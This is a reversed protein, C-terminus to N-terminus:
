LQIRKGEKILKILEDKYREIYGDVDSESALWAKDFDVIVKRTPIYEIEQEAVGGKQGSTKGAPKGGKGTGVQDSGKPIPTAADVMKKLLKQYGAEEFFRISDNIVAILHQQNIHDKLNSFPADLQRSQEEALTKYENMSQMRSQMADLKTITETRIEQIKKNITTKLEDVQSKLNQIKDGKYCSPDALVIKIQNISDNDNENIYAFNADQSQIFEKSSAYIERQFGSMFKRVPDIVSEKLDLLEDENNSLETLYWTYPKGNISELQEITPVLSNLFPYQSSQVVLLNLEDIVKQFALGTDKGLVKAESSQPPADFFDEYFEKLNRVQSASFDIQPDLVVNAHERSNLLAKELEGEELINGDKRVEIKGRACLMALTSLIAAYYWGYPKREFKEILNKLTTRVGGRNNSQVFSLLEQESEAMATADNGFLGEQTNNLYNPVDNETYSIGRLMSLNPYTRQILDHFGRIIRSAADEGGIEVDGGQVLMNAQGLLSKISQQIGSYRERNQFGKNELIGKVTDLQATSINQRIYKETQKYMTIDRMLRDDPPMIVMLEARAMSLGRLVDLSEANEYFPTIVNISLEHERGHLRDDLKRTYFYDHGNDEYRIKRNKIIHDFVIKVLEDAVETTEIETNKIEEEVDKEEDTLYEYEEGNRQIYTQQELLNLAQEVRKRLVPIDQNFDELMLVCLNRLTSKFEKVYKILFLAKLVRIAFPNDLNNNAQIIAKQIQSKLATSIGEFMLDFTALQGVEHDAIHIAVQQFVGLMSREGVSSHKGEFASHMSLNQIASQFLSFQYPIFPYGHIFDERDQFNRYTQSGDVFDFLTKFNNSQEHYLDTLQKIGNDNKSM